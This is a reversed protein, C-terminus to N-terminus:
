VKNHVLQSDGIDKTGDSGAKGDIHTLFTNRWRDNKIIKDSYRYANLQRNDNKLFARLVFAPYFYAQSDWKEAVKYLYARASNETWQRDTPRNQLNMVSNPNDPSIPDQYDQCGLYDWRNVADNNIFAYLNNGGAEEIPDRSLWRSTEPNYYRYGYYYLATEKDFYKTSFRYLLDDSKTGFSCIIKGFPDYQYTAVVNGSNDLYTTINGNGDFIPLYNNVALLGGVGGAGQLSGSLDEGWLYSNILTNSADYEAALNWGDYTFKTETTLVNNIYLKKNTRRGMYDYTFEIRTDSTEAKVLRNEADWTYTFKGDTLLNGDNDYTFQEPTKAVFVNLSQKAVIDKTGDYKVAYIDFSDTVANTSNDLNFFANFYNGYRLPRTYGASTQKITVKADSAASGSINVRGPVTRQTYQNVNNATYKFVNGNRNETKLNGIDDYDYGFSQGVVEVGSATYKKGKTVQGLDDYEYIWYSGDSLTNRTRKDSNDYTYSYSIGNSTISTLRDLTDYTRNVTLIDATGNNVITNALLSSGSVRSYTATRAGDSVTALRSMADYTYNTTPGNTASMSIRRGLADYTYGVSGESALSGDTNYSLSRTGSADTISTPRGSRDRIYSVSPTSDSYTIGSLSGSNDYAYTTTIGRSWIRTALSGDYNYTYSVSKGDDYIKSTLFGRQPTYNWTTVAQGHSPLHPNYYKYTTLTKMRGAADYSYLQPYTDSGYQQKLEGTPFYSYNIKKGSPLRTSIRRGMSDYSFYTKRGAADTITAINGSTDLSYSNVCTEGNVTNTVSKMRNFADYAYSTTGLVSHTSSALLGNKYSSVISSSDPNIVAINRGGDEPYSTISRTTRGFSSSKNELGDVSSLNESVLTAADSGDAMYMSAASRRYVKNPILVYSNEYSTVIDPGALDIVGNRNMDVASYQVEGKANYGTLVSIGTSGVNKVPRGLSDYFTEEYSGDPYVTKTSSTTFGRLSKVWQTESGGDGIMVVKSYLKGGEVGYEYKQHHVATGSRESLQGDRNYKEIVTTGDPNSPNQPVDVLRFQSAINWYEIDFIELVASSM